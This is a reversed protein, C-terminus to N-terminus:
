VGLGPFTEAEVEGAADLISINLGSGNRTNQVVEAEIQLARGDDVIPQLAQIAINELRQNGNESPRKKVTYFDSGWKDDPAYLWQKRKAKLRFYAPIQLSNTQSPSGEAMVYDGSSPDIQWTQSM